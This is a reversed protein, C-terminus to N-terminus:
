DSTNSKREQSTQNFHSVLWGEVMDHGSHCLRNIFTWGLVGASERALGDIKYAVSIRSLEELDIRDVTSCTNASFVITQRDVLSIAM